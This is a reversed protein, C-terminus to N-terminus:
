DMDIELAQCCELFPSLARSSFFFDEYFLKIHECRTAKGNVRSRGRTGRRCRLGMKKRARTGGMGHAVRTCIANENYVM